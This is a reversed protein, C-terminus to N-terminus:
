GSKRKTWTRPSRSKKGRPYGVLAAMADVLEAGRSRVDNIRQGAVRELLKQGPSAILILVQRGDRPNRSRQVYGRAEMRNILEVTSNHKLGLREALVRVSPAIGDPLGRLMLLLLYQQPELGIRRAAHDSESLFRRVQYRLEALARYDSSTVGLPLPKDGDQGGNYRIVVNDPGTARSSPV